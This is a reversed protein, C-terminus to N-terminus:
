VEDAPPSVGAIRTRRDVHDRGTRTLSAVVVEGFGALETRRLNVAGLQELQLLQTEVWAHSRRIGLADIVRGISLANLTADSQRALEALIALRADEQCKIEYGSM